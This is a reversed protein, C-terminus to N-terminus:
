VENRSDSGCEEAEVTEWGMVTTTRSSVAEWEPEKLIGLPSSHVLPYLKVEWEATSGELSM